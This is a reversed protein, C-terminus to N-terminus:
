DEANEGHQGQGPILTSLEDLTREFPEESLRDEPRLEGDVQVETVEAKWKTPFSLRYGFEIKLLREPGLRGCNPGWFDDTMDMERQTEAALAACNALHATPFAGVVERHIFPDGHAVESGIVTTFM